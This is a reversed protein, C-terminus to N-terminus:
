KVECWLVQKDSEIKQTPNQQWRLLNPLLDHSIKRRITSDTCPIMAVAITFILELWQGLEKRAAESVNELSMLEENENLDRVFRNLLGVCCELDLLPTTATNQVTLFTQVQDWQTRCDGLNSEILEMPGLDVFDPEAEMASILQGLLMLLTSKGFSTTDEGQEQQLLLSRAVLFSVTNELIGVSETAVMSDQSFSSIMWPRVFQELCAEEKKYDDLRILHAKFIPLLIQLTGFRAKEDIANTYQEDLQQLFNLLQEDGANQILLQQFPVSAFDM